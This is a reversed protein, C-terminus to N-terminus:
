QFKVMFEFLVVLTFESLLVDSIWWNWGGHEGFFFNKHFLGVLAFCEENLDVFNEESGNKLNSSM